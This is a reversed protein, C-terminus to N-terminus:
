REMEEVIAVLDIDLDNLADMFFRQNDVDVNYMNVLELPIISYPGTINDMSLCSEMRLSYSKLRTLCDTYLRGLISQARGLEEMNEAREKM